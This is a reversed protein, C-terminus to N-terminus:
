ATWGRDGTIWESKGQRRQQRSTKKALSQQTQNEQLVTPPVEQHEEGQVSSGGYSAPWQPEPHVQLQLTHLKKIQVILNWHQICLITEFEHWGFMEVVRSHHLVKNISVNQNTWLRLRGNAKWFCCKWSQLSSHVVHAVYGSIRVQFDVKLSIQDSWSM